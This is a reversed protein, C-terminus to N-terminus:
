SNLRKMDPRNEKPALDSSKLKKPEYRAVTTQTGNTQLIKVIQNTNDMIASLYSNSEAILESVRDSNASAATDNPTAVPNGAGGLVKMTASMLISEASVKSLAQNVQNLQSIFDQAFNGGLEKMTDRLTLLSQSANVGFEAMKQIGLGMLSFANGLKDVVPIMLAMVLGMGALVALGAVGAAAFTGLVAMSMGLATIGGALSVLLTLLNAVVVGFAAMGNASEAICKVLIAISVVILAIGLGILAISAGLALIGPAAALGASGLVYLALSFALIVGVMGIMIAMMIKFLGNIQEPNLDKISKALLAVSAVILAIGAAIFFIAAGLALLQAPKIKSLKDMFGESQKTDKGTAGASKAKEAPANKPTEPKAQKAQETPALKEKAKNYKLQETPTRKRFQGNASRPQELASPNKIGKMKAILNKVGDIAGTIKEKISGFGEKLKSIPTKLMEMAKGFGLLDSTSKLLGASALAFFSLLGIGMLTKGLKVMFVLSKSLPDNKKKLEDFLTLVKTIGKVIVGLFPTVINIIPLVVMQMIVNLQDWFKKMEKNMSARAKNSQEVLSSEEKNKRLQEDTLSSLNQVQELSLGYQQAMEKLAFVNGGYQAKLSKALKVMREDMNDLKKTDGTMMGIADGATMGLGKYLLINDEIKDPDLMKTLIDNAQDASLGAKEFAVNLYAVNKTMTKIDKIRGGFAKMTRAMSGVQKAVSSAESATLGLENQVNAMANAADKVSGQGLGGVLHLEKVFQTAEQTSMNFAQGMRVVTEGYDKMDSISDTIRASAISQIAEASDKMTIQTSEGLELVASSMQSVPKYMAFMDKSLNTTALGLQTVTQTMEEQAKRADDVATFAGTANGAEVAINQLTPEYHAIMKFTAAGLKQFNSTEATLEKLEKTLKGVADYDKTSKAFDEYAKFIAKQKKEDFENFTDSIKKLSDGLGGMNKNEKRIKILSDFMQGMSETTMNVHPAFFKLQDELSSFVGELKKAEKDSYMAKFNESVNKIESGFEKLLEANFTDVLDKHYGKVYDRSKDLQKPINNGYWETFNKEAKKFSSALNETASSMKGIGQTAKASNIQFNLIFDIPIM